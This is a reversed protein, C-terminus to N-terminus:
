KNNRSRLYLLNCTVGTSLSIAVNLIINYNSLLGAILFSIASCVLTPIAYSHQTRVHNIHSSQTSAATVITADALPSIHNGTVAGALIAGLTPIIIPAQALTVPTHVQLMSITMPIAIPIMIAM